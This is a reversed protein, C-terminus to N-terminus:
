SDNEVRLSQALMATDLQRYTMDVLSGIELHLGNDTPSGFHPFLQLHCLLSKVPKEGPEMGITIQSTLFVLDDPATQSLKKLPTSAGFRVIQRIFCDISYDFLKRFYSVLIGALLCFVKVPDCAMDVLLAESPRLEDM